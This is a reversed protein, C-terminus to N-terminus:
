EAALFIIGPLENEHALGFACSIKHAARGGRERPHCAALPTFPVGASSGEPVGRQEARAEEFEEARLQSGEFCSWESVPHESADVVRWWGDGTGTIGYAGSELWYCVMGHQGPRAETEWGPRLDAAESEM